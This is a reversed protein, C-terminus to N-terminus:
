PCSEESPDMRAFNVQLAEERETILREVEALERLLSHRYQRLLDNAIAPSTANPNDDQEGQCAPHQAISM